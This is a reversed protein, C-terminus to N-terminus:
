RRPHIRQEAREEEREIRLGRVLEHERAEVCRGVDPRARANAGRTGDEGTVAIPSENGFRTPRAAPSSLSAACM